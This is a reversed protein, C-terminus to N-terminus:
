RVAQPTRGRRISTRHRRVQEAWATADGSVLVSRGVLVGDFGAEILHAAHAPSDVGSASVTCGAGAAQLAPLHAISRDPDSLGIERRRIDKNNVAVVCADAPVVSAIEAVNMTEVFPMLRLQVAEEILDTLIPRTLLAATLLVADVGLEAARRLHRGTTLFDKQLLPLSTTRRVDELMALSGGFWRGTVVSVCPAGADEYGAVVETPARGGMLDVGEGDHCKVEMVVPCTALRLAAVFPHDWAPSSM